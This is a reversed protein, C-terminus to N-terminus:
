EQADDKVVSPRPAPAPGPQSMTGKPLIVALAVGEWPRRQPSDVSDAGLPMVGTAGPDLHFKGVLYERVV